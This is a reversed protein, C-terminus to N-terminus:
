NEKILGRSSFKYVEDVYKITERDHSIIIITKDKLEQFIIKIIKEKLESNINSLFEDLLYVEYNRVFARMLSVLQKQGESLNQGKEDIITEWRNPLKDIFDKIGLKKAINELKQKHIKEQYLDPYVINNGLSTNFFSPNNPLYVIKKRLSSNAIKEIETEDLKITGKQPQYLKVILKFLTSKGVGNPGVIVHKKGSQFTFSFNDLIKKSTEPYIFNINQFSISPNKTLLIKPSTKAPLDANKELITFANNLQNVSSRYTDYGGYAWLMEFLKKWQSFLEKLPIYLAAWIGKGLCLLLIVPMYELLIYNPIAGYLSKSLALPFLKKATDKMSKKNKQIEIEEAGAIKIHEINNKIEEFQKNEQNITRKRRQRYYYSLQYLLTAILTLFILALFILPILGKQKENNGIKWFLFIISAAAYFCRNFIRSAQIGVVLADSEYNSLIFKTKQTQSFNARLYKQALKKRLYSSYLEELYQGLAIHIIVIIGFLILRIVVEIWNSKIYSLDGKGVM